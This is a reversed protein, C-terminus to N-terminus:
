WSIGLSIVFHSELRKRRSKTSFHTLDKTTEERGLDGASSLHWLGFPSMTELDGDLGSLVM